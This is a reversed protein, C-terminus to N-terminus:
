FAYGLALNFQNRGTHARNRVVQYDAKVVVGDLPRFEVGVTHFSADRAPDRVFGAPVQAHTDLREFRYYPTLAARERFPALLNYGIQVYGGQQRRGVANTVTLGRARSLELSGDVAGRAYLARLDIGRIQIQGHIEGITTTVEIPRGDLLIQDQDAGGTYLAAGLLVGVTPTVELRGAFAVDSARARSGKQRGGRLGDAAFGTANLGNVLYARYDVPGLTGLLGVGNERWTSPILRTETEPRRAGLFVTPEHFENVFGLPLLVMGGRITLAPHVFYDVYAFEVSIENAHELELESNFVVRDAFRYGAYLVARLMDLQAGKPSVTGSELRQAFRELLVEGYGAISVGERRRYAAAASPALGLARRRRESLALEEEGARWRELEAALIELRRKLEEVEAALVAQSDAPQESTAPLPAEGTAADSAPDPPRAPAAVPPPAPLREDAAPDAALPSQAAAVLPWLAFAAALPMVRRPRSTLVVALPSLRSVM